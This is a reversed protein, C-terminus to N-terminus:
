LLRVMRYAPAAGPFRWGFRLPLLVYLSGAITALPFLISTLFVLLGLEPMGERALALPGSLMVNDEVRGSLKLSVFPFANAMVWLMLAALYLACARDLSDPVNRYLPAACRTCLAKGGPALPAIRHLLDCEQCATLGGASTPQGSGQNVRDERAGRVPRVRRRIRLRPHYRISFRVRAPM